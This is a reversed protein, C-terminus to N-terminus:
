QLTSLQPKVLNQSNQEDLQWLNRSIEERAQIIYLISDLLEFIVDCMFTYKSIRAKMIFKWFDSASLKPEALKMQGGIFPLIPARTIDKWTTRCFSWAKHRDTEKQYLAISSLIQFEYDFGVRGLVCQLRGGGCRKGYKSWHWSPRAVLHDLWIGTFHGFKGCVM